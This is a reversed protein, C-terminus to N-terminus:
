RQFPTLPRRHFIQVDGTDYVRNQSEFYPLAIGYRAAKKRTLDSILFHSPRSTLGGAAYNNAPEWDYGEQAALVDRKHASIDLWVDANALNDDIWSGARVELPNYFTWFNGVLPDNTVKLLAAVIALGVLMIAVFTPARTGHLSFRQLKLGRLWTSAMAVALILFPAMYRVQLNGAFTGSFDALLGIAFQLGIGFYLLWLIFEASSIQERKAHIIRWGLRIWAAFSVVLVGYQFVVLGIYISTSRWATGVYGFSSPVAVEEAGLLTVAIRDAMKELTYVYTLAPTYVYFIFLFVLTIGTLLIYVMRLSRPSILKDQPSVFGLMALLLLAFAFTALITSALFVNTAVMAWFLLYTTLIVAAARFPQTGDINKLWLAMILMSFTWTIREHSARLM